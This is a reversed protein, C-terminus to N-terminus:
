AARSRLHDQYLPVTFAEGEEDTEAKSPAAKMLKLMADSQKAMESQQLQILRANETLAQQLQEWHKDALASMATGSNQLQQAHDSLTTAVVDRMASETHEATNDAIRNWRQQADSISREWIGAQRKILEENSEIVEGIMTRILVVNPDQKAEFESFRGVMVASTKADVRDLLQSEFQNSVYQCFMLVIALVLALATTDFAVALGALLGEMASEPTSVLATPSLDSLALTIGIVTGLFGLMPTAWIIIRVLANQEYQRDADAESLRKLEADLGSADGKRIVFQ